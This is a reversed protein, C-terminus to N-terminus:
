RHVVSDFRDVLASVAVHYFWYDICVLEQVLDFFVQLFLFFGLMVRLLFDRLKNFRSEFAALSSFSSELEFEHLKKRTHADRPAPTWIQVRIPDPTTNQTRTEQHACVFIGLEVSNLPEIQVPRV